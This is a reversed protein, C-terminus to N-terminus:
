RGKNIIAASAQTIGISVDKARKDFIGVATRSIISPYTIALGKNLLKETSLILIRSNRARVPNIKRINRVPSSISTLLIRSEIDNFFIDTERKRLFGKKTPISINKNVKAKDKKNELARECRTSILLMQYKEKIRTVEETPIISGTKFLLSSIFVSNPWIIIEAAAIASIILM